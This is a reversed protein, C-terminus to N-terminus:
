LYELRQGDASQQRAGESQDIPGKSGQRPVRSMGWQSAQRTCQLVVDTQVGVRRCIYSPKSVKNVTALNGCVRALQLHPDPPMKQDKDLKAAMSKLCPLNMLNLMNVM